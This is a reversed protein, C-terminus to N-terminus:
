ISYVDTVPIMNNLEAFLVSWLLSYPTDLLMLRNLLCINSLDFFYTHISGLEFMMM